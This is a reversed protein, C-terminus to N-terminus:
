YQSELILFKYKCKYWIIQYLHLYWLVFHRFLKDHHRPCKKFRLLFNFTSQESRSFIEISFVFDLGTTMGVNKGLHFCGNENYETRWLSHRTIIFNKDFLCYVIGLLRQKYAFLDRVNEKVHKYTISLDYKLVPLKSNVRHSCISFLVIKIKLGLHKKLSIFMQYPQTM